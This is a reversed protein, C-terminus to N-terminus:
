LNERAPSKYVQADKAAQHLAHLLELYLTESIAQTRGHPLHMLLSGDAEYSLGSGDEVTFGERNEAREIARAFDRQELILRLAHRVDHELTRFSYNSVDYPDPIPLLEVPPLPMLARIREADDHKDQVRLLAVLAALYDAKPIHYKKSKIKKHVHWKWRWIRIYGQRDARTPYEIGVGSDTNGYGRKEIAFQVIQSLNRWMLIMGLAERYTWKRPVLTYPFRRDFRVELM